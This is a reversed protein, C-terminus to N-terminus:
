NREDISGPKLVSAVPGRRSYDAIVGVLVATSVYALVGALNKNYEPVSTYVALAGAPPLAALVLAMVRTQINPLERLVQVMRISPVLFDQAITLVERTRNIVSERDRM